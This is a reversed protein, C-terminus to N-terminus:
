LAGAATRDLVSGLHSTLNLAQVTPPGELRNPYDVVSVAGNGQKVVWIDKPHLGLVHCLIAKNVADHAVVLGTSGEPATSIIENWAAIAREWVQQMNEGEPMQVTHPAVKWAALEAGYEAEIEGELKGEWRGHSIEKLGDADTLSIDPHHQLIAQATQKPRAMPSTVAFDLPVDKLFEAAQAAQAQGNANLPVDIQGQFRKERNWDTEGHRVLLLRVGKAKKRPPFPEGLHAIQNLSEFQVGDGWGGPFNVVNICCNSQRLVQYLSPPIGAATSLLSRLIGNHGVVLVTQDRHKELLHQWFRQAQEFLALVPFHNVPGAEGGLVMFFEHPREKWTRYDEPFQAQVDVRKMGAWLPLDIELLEESTQLPPTHGLRQDLQQDLEELMIEATRRARQLPSSYVADLPIGALGQAVQRAMAAGVETLTSADIRGQIREEANYSSQGHRVLIIRTTM